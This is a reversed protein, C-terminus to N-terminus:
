AAPPHAKASPPALLHKQQETLTEIKRFVTGTLRWKKNGNDAPQAAERFLKTYSLSRRFRNSATDGGSM